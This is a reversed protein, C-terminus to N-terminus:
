PARHRILQSSAQELYEGEVDEARTPDALGRVAPDAFANEGPVDVLPRDVAGVHGPARQREECVDRPVDELAVPADDGVDVVFRRVFLLLRQEVDPRPLEASR